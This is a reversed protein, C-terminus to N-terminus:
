PLRAVRAFRRRARATKRPAATLLRRLRTLVASFRAVVQARYVEDYRVMPMDMDTTIQRVTEVLEALATDDTVNWAPFAAMWRALHKVTVASHPTKLRGTEPDTETLQRYLTTLRTAFRQRPGDRMDWVIAALRQIHAAQQARYQTPALRALHAPVSWEVAIVRLTCATQLSALLPDTAEEYPRAALTAAERQMTACARVWAPVRRTDHEHIDQDLQALVAAVHANPIFRYAGMGMYRSMPLGWLELFHNVRDDFSRMLRAEPCTFLGAPIPLGRAWAMSTLTSRPGLLQVRLVIGRQFVATVAAASLPKPHDTM